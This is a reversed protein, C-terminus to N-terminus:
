KEKEVYGGELEIYKKCCEIWKNFARTFSNKPITNCVQEWEKTITSSDVSIGQFKRKVTPFLFFNASALDPSYPPHNITKIGRTATFEKTRKSAHCPANDM